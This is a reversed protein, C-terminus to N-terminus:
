LMAELIPKLINDIRCIKAYQMIERPKTDKEV